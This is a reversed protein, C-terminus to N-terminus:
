DMAVKILNAVFLVVGFVLLYDRYPLYSPMASTMGILILVVMFFALLKM